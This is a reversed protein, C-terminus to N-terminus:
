LILLSKTYGMAIIGEECINEIQLLNKEGFFEVLDCDADGKSQKQTNVISSINEKVYFGMNECLDYISQSKDDSFTEYKILFAHSSNIKYQKYASLWNRAMVEIYHGGLSNSKWSDDLALRWARTKTLEPWDDLDLNGLDGPIKLRNLISRINDRPDRIVFVFKGKPFYRIFDSAYNTLVPEKIVGKSFELKYKNVVDDVSLVKHELQFSLSSDPISRLIDETCSKRLAESLLYTIISTGSKGNGFILVPSDNVNVFLSKIDTFFHGVIKRAQKLFSRINM